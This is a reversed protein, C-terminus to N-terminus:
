IIELFSHLYLCMRTLIKTRCSLLYIHISTNFFRGWIKGLLVTRQSTIIAGVPALLFGDPSTSTSSCMFMRQEGAGSGEGGCICVSVM